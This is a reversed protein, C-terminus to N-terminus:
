ICTESCRTSGDPSMTEPFAECMKVLCIYLVYQMVQSWLLTSSGQVCDVSQVLLASAPSSLLILCSCSLMETGTTWFAGDETRKVNAGCHDARGLWLKESVHQQESKEHFLKFM